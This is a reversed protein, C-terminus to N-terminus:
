NGSQMEKLIRRRYTSIAGPLSRDGKADKWAPTRKVNAHVERYWEFPYHYHVPQPMMAWCRLNGEHCNIWPNEGPGLCRMLHPKYWVTVAHGFFYPSRYAFRRLDEGINPPALSDMLRQGSGMIRVAEGGHAWYMIEELRDDNLTKDLWFDEQMYLVYPEPINVLGRILRDSWEGPGTPCWVMSSPLGEKFSYKIEEENMFYLKVRDLITNKQFKKWCYFWGEWLREYADCTHLIVALDKM